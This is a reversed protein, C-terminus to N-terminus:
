NKVSGKWWKVQEPKAYKEKDFWIFTGVCEGKIIHIRM